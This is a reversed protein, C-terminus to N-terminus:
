YLLYKQGNQIVIGRFSADVQQGLTNYMPENLNLQAPVITANEIATREEAFHAEGYKIEITTYKEGVYKTLQGTVFVYDGLMINNDIACKYAEFDSFSEAEMKTDLM